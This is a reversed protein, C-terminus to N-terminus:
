DGMVGTIEVVYQSELLLECLEDPTIEDLADPWDIDPLMGSDRIAEALEVCMLANRSAWLNRKATKELWNWSLAFLGFVLGGYDYPRGLYDDLAACYIRDMQDKSLPGTYSLVRVLKARKVWRDYYDLEVGPLHSHLVTFHEDFHIVFHSSEGCIRRILRAVPKRSTTFLFRM